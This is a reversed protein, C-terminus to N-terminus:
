VGPDSNQDSDRLVAVDVGLKPFSYPLLYNEGGPADGRRGAVHSKEDRADRPGSRGM